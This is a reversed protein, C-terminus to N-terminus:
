SPKTAAQPRTRLITSRAGVPEPFDVRMGCISKSRFRTWPCITTRCGRRLVLRRVRGCAAVLGDQLTDIPLPQKM